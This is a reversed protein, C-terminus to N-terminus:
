CRKRNDRLCQLCQTATPPSTDCDVVSNDELDTLEEDDNNREKLVNEVLTEPDEVTPAAVLESDELEKLKNIDESM